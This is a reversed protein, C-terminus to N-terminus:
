GKGWPEAEIRGERLRAMEPAPKGKRSPSIAIHGAIRLQTPALDLACVVAAEDGMAGAHVVGRVRGWVVVDGGAVVEAGANVDGVVIVHGPHHISRGSRLTRRIFLADDGREEPDISPEADTASTQPLAVELGLAQAAAQTTGSDSLVTRLAVQHDALDDRLRGLDAAGIARAGVQLVIRAGRFFEPTESLRALLGGAVEPWEGDGLTILLGDKTGKIVLPAIM